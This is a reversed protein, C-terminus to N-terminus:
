DLGVSRQQLWVVSRVAACIEAEALMALLCPLQLGDLPYVIKGRQRANPL